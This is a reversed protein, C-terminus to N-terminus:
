KITDNVVEEVVAEEIIEKVIASQKLTETNYLNGQWMFVRLSGHESSDGLMGKGFAFAQGFSEYDPYPAILIGNDTFHLIEEEIADKLTNPLKEPFTPEEVVEEELDDLMHTLIEVQTPENYEVAGVQEIMEDDDNSQFITVSAIILTIVFGWAAIKKNKDNMKTVEKTKNTFYYDQM